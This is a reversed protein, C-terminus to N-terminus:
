DFSPISLICSSLTKIDVGCHSLGTWLVLDEERMLGTEKNRLRQQQDSNQGDENAFSAACDGLDCNGSNSFDLSAFHMCQWKGLLERKMM